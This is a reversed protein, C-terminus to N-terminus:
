IITYLYNVPVAGTFQRMQGQHDIGTHAILLCILVAKRMEYFMQYEFAGFPALGVM